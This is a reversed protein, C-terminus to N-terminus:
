SLAMPASFKFATMLATAFTYSTTTLSCPAIYPIAFSSPPPPTPSTTVKTPMAPNTAMPASTANTNAPTAILSSSAIIATAMPLRLNRRAQSRRFIKAPLRLNATDNSGKSSNPKGIQLLFKGHQDFKLIMNDHYSEVGGIEIDQGNKVPGTGRGKGAGGLWVNGQSDVTIGHNADPWDYGPGPGGWHEILNGAQDFALVDPAPACCAAIKPTTTAHMEGVELSGPRHVIWVNDKADVSVGISQGLIWANPLPKPWFPDVVFKPAMVEANNSGAASTIEIYDFAAPDAGDPEGEITIVDNPQLKINRITAAPPLIAMSPKPPSITM